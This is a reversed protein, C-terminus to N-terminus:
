HPNAGRSLLASYEPPPNIASVSFGEARYATALTQFHLGSWCPAGFENYKTGYRFWRGYNESTKAALEFDALHGAALLPGTQSPCSTIPICYGNQLKFALVPFFTFVVSRSDANTEVSIFWDHLTAPILPTRNKESWLYICIAAILFALFLEINSM